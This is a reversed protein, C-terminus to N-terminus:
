QPPRPGANGQAGMMKYMEQAQKNAEAAAQEASVEPPKPPLKGGSPETSCGALSLIMAALGLGPLMTRPKM